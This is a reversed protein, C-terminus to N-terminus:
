DTTRPVDRKAHRARRARTPAPLHQEHGGGAVVARVHVGIGDIRARVVERVDDADGRAVTVVPARGVGVDARAADVECCRSRRDLTGHRVVAPARQAARRHRRRVDGARGRKQQRMLRRRPRRVQDRREDARRRRGRREGTQRGTAPAEIDRGRQSGDSGRRRRPWWRRRGRGCRRRHRGRGGHGSGGSRGRRM